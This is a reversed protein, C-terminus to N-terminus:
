VLINRRAKGTTTIKRWIIEMIWSKMGGAGRVAVVSLALILHLVFTAGSSNKGHHLPIGLQVEAGATLAAVTMEM